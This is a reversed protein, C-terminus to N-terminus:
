VAFLALEKTDFDVEASAIDFLAGSPVNLETLRALSKKNQEPLDESVVALREDIKNVQKAQSSWEFLPRAAEWFREAATIDGRGKSIDGLRLLCEARSQHVDM